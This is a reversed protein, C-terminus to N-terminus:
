VEKAELVTIENMIENLTAMSAEIQTKLLAVKGKLSSLQMEQQSSSNNDSEISYYLIRRLVEAEPIELMKSINSLKEYCDSRFNISKSVKIEAKDKETIIEDMLTQRAEIPFLQIANNIVFSDKYDKSTANDGYYKRRLISCVEQINKMSSISKNAM